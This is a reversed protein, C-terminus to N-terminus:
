KVFVNTDGGIIFEHNPFAEMLIRIGENLEELEKKNKEAKSSLHVCVFFINGSM